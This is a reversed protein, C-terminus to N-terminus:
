ELHKSCCDLLRGVGDDNVHHNSTVDNKSATWHNLISIIRRLATIRAKAKLGDLQRDLLDDEILDAKSALVSVYQHLGSMSMESEHVHILLRAMINWLASRAELDDSAFPFIDLLGQLFTLDYSIESALDAVDSLINAILVVATVSSNAVEAKDPLTVLKCVLQFLEKNSSIQPSHNDIVSLTEIVRLIVDLISLREPIRETVINSIEFDLLNILLSPLGLNMLPSLLIHVVEQSSETIALLLEVSKEILQLNLSNEAIWLIRSLTHESQLASAWALSESSQLGLTLLRCAECLCQADDLFLQNVILEILENTSIIRQMPVEHCALNGLIGLIIETARTSQSVMLNALLVELVLNEVMLEAHTKSAALDWLVCGYEEWAQEGVSVNHDSKEVGQSSENSVREVSASERSDDVIEMNKSISSHMVRDRSLSVACGATDDVSSGQNPADSADILSADKSTVKIPLLKRILSIIYSPDVTTSINFLEDLPAFPHHAPGDRYAPEDQDEEEEEEIPSPELEVAM